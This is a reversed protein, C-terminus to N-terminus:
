HSVNSAGSEIVIRTKSRQDSSLELGKGSVLQRLGEYKAGGEGATDKSSLELIRGGSWEWLELALKNFQSNAKIQWDTVAINAVLRVRNWDVTVKAARLLRKQGSSLQRYIDNGTEPIKEGSVRNRISYSTNTENQSMDVECKFDERRGPSDPFEINNAPRLKVTLDSTSGQRFRVMVGQSFLEYRETDFFYIKGKSERRADLREISLSLEAPSLLLKVEVGCREQVPSAVCVAVTASLILARITVSIIRSNRVKVSASGIGCKASTVRRTSVVMRGWKLETFIWRM